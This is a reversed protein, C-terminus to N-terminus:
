RPPPQMAASLAAQMDQPLSAVGKVVGAGGNRWQVSFRRRPAADAPRYESLELVVETAGEVLALSAGIRVIPGLERVTITVVRDERPRAAAAAAPDVVRQIAASSFCGSEAFFRAIGQAAAAERAPVDKQDARWHTAWFVTAQASPECLPAQPSPAVQVTTTSACGVLLSAMLILPALAAGRVAPPMPRSGERIM